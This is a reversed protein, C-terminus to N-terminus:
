QAGYRVWSPVYGIEATGVAGSGGELGLDLAARVLVLRSPCLLLRSLGLARLALSLGLFLGLSLLCLAALLLSLHFLFLALPLPALFALRPVGMPCVAGGYPPTTYGREYVLPPRSLLGFSIYIASIM